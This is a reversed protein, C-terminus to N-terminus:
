PVLALLDRHTNHLLAGERLLPGITASDERGQETLQLQPAIIHGLSGVRVGNLLTEQIVKLVRAAGDVVEQINGAV